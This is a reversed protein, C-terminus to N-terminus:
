NASKQTFQSKFRFIHMLFKFFFDSFINKDMCFRFKLVKVAFRFGISLFKIPPSELDTSFDVFFQFSYLKKSQSKKNKFNFDENKANALFVIKATWDHVAWKMTSQSKHLYPILRFPNAESPVM